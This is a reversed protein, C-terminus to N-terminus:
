EGVEYNITKTETKLLQCPSAYCDKLSATTWPSQFIEGDFKVTYRYLVVEKTVKKKAKEILKLSPENHWSYFSGDKYFTDSNGTIFDVVILGSSSSIDRIVGEVGFAEVKDGVEFKIKM